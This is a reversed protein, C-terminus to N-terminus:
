QSLPLQEFKKYKCKLINLTENVLENRLKKDSAKPGYQEIEFVNYYAGNVLDSNDSYSLFLTTQAGHIVDKTLVYLINRFITIFLFHLILKDIKYIKTFIVGPHLCVVKLYPYKKSTVEALYQTFYVILLKTDLYFDHKNIMNMYYQNMADYSKLLKSDGYTLKSRKHAMSSVNIIKSEKDNFHDLLLITLLVPSLYNVQYTNFYGDKTQHINSVSSMGANNILIDIKPYNTKIVKSFKEISEFSELDLHEFHAKHRINNPLKNIIEETKKRNRCAFIVEANSLLLDKATELGIGDSAGTVIVLKGTLDKKVTNLPGNAWKKVFYGLILLIALIILIITFDM